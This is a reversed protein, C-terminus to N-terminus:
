TPAKAFRRKLEDKSIKLLVPRGNPATYPDQCQFLEDILTRMEEPSMATGTKIAGSRAVSRALNNHPRSLSQQTGDRYETLVDRLFYRETGLRLGQPVGRVVITRGSYRDTDFGLAILLSELEEFLAMDRADLEMTEAFLLQQSDGSGQHLTNLAREYLIREHAAQQDLIMLGTRLPTCIYQNHLQWLQPGTAADETGSSNEGSDVSGSLSLRGTTVRQQGAGPSETQIITSRDARGYNRSRITVAGASHFQPVLDASGLSKRIVARLFGYVDRDKEFRVEAKTPHVNVDIHVPDLVLFLVYFPYLRQAPMMGEYASVIAHQLLRSQVARGNVYMFRDKRSRRMQAARCILGSVSIYSTSERVDILKQAYQAGFIHAVRERATVVDAEGTCAPLRHVEKGNNALSFAIRPNALALSIFTDTIHSNETAPSKLFSRRAPTNYFLNRVDITTGAVAACPESAQIQGGHIRVMHGQEDVERRTKLTIQSVAAIAALAEGRFGLTWIHDLEAATRIKSTAHRLFCHKADEPGMGIGNDHVLIQRSGAGKIEVDIRTANADIANELLEKLAAAPRTVVEGAAIKNALSAPM